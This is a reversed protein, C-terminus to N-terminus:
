RCKQLCVSRTTSNRPTALFSCFRRLTGIGFRLCTLDDRGEMFSRGLGYLCAGTDRTLEKSSYRFSGCKSCFLISYLAFLSAALFPPFDRPTVLFSGSGLSNIEVECMVMHQVGVTAGFSGVGLLEWGLVELSGGLGASLVFTM